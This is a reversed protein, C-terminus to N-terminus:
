AKAKRYIDLEKKIWCFEPLKDYQSQPTHISEIPVWVKAHLSCKCVACAKLFADSSTKRNGVLKAALNQIQGCSHCGGTIQVNYYCGSCIMARKNALEQDVHTLGSAVWSAVTQTGAVVDDWYIRTFVNRGQGPPTEKCHGPPLMQCLQDEVEAEWFTGLPLNNAKRHDRVNEFL